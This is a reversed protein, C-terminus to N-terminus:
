LALTRQAKVFRTVFPDAPANVLEDVTGRQLIQGDRMLVLVDGLYAAEGLDHTVLVCTKGLERVVVRLDDQLESRIVPDLAGLPEDLLLVDPDLMLARMLSVRQRQGGSLERPYRALADVGLRALSGLETMRADIRAESWGLYRAMLAVNDRAALHPFLGGDQIVYGMRRRLSTVTKPTVLVGEFRVEGADPLLLGVILRLLTSKGCGSGGILVTTKSREICLDTPGLAIADGYRKVAARLEIM